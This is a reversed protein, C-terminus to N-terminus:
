SDLGTYAPYASEGHESVDLGQLEDKKSVRIETFIRVISIAILTGIVAWAISVLIALLQPIIQSLSGDILLGNKGTVVNLDALCFLGTMIGGYIGGIGHCGFADLADDIKIVKKILIIGFYCVPSVLLGIIFAAWLPVFGAGPTIAVLGAVGGTCAGVLTAKGSKIIDILMWSFLAAGASIATNSFALGAIGDAALESGANFAFWGFWLLGMGLMIFPINHPRTEKTGYGVRRGLIIALVLGTVGSSIHVVNGGAFDISGLNGEGGGLLGGGWVMHALPYYVILLWITIFGFLANFKMRGAISGTIIAATIISFMMQFMSFTYETIDLSGHLTKWSSISKHFIGSLDGIVGWNKGTSFALTYGVVFWMVMALGMIFVSNMMNSVVNKRRGLGGYFFGLGPTMIFVMAACILIFANNGVSLEVDAAFASPLVLLSLLCLMFFSLLSKRIMM